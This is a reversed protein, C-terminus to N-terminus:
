NFTKIIYHCQAMPQYKGPVWKQLIINNKGRKRILTNSGSLVQIDYDKRVQMFTNLNFDSKEMWSRIQKEENFTTNGDFFKYLLSRNM